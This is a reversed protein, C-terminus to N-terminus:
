LLIEQGNLKDQLLSIDAVQLFLQRLSMLLALRNDRVTEDEVMVMVEKFFQDIPTNLQSLEALLASYDSIHLLRKTSLRKEEVADFLKKEATETFLEPRLLPQSKKETQKTLLNKVRKNANTLNEAAPLRQFEQIAILRKQFDFLRTPDSASVAAFVDASFGERLSLHRHREQIFQLVDVVVKKNTLKNGYIEKAKEILDLVSFDLRKEIALRLIGLTARRLGFPDKDGTPAKGIGFIGVLTDIRDAISLVQGAATKPLQDGAFRPMYQENIAVSVANPEGDHEAYYYGITGQLEPFESVMQTLLDTKCLLAARQTLEMNAQIEEALLQSLAIIRQTKEYLSGLEKQFLINRLNDVRNALSVKTDLQFFFEADSLRAHMVRQNGRIVEASNKSEINSITIFYPLLKKGMNTCSSSEAELAFCKQHKQMVSILVERPLKLFRENFSGMLAVPWEVLGSVEELLGEPIIVKGQKQQALKEIQLKIYNERKKADVMVRVRLLKQEYEQPSNIQTAQPYHFRHGFTIRGTNLGLITAKIVSRGYLLTIAHVPRIFHITENGWRMTKPLPLQAITQNVINPLLEETQKGKEHTRYIMWAGKETIFQELHDVSVGCSQAFGKCAPTPKNDQDFAASLAPGRKEVLRDAQRSALSSIVWALHRPSAFTKIGTFQLGANNLEKKLLESFAESIKKLMQAPIEESFLEILADKPKKTKFIM